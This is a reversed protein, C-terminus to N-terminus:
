QSAELHARREANAKLHALRLPEPVRCSMTRECIAVATRLSIRHGVSVYTKRRGTGLAYGRTRGDLEIAARGRRAAKVNGVLLSKAAGVTPVELEVGVQCAIGYGRPHLQGQGDVLYVIDKKKRVLKRLMPLERLGLYGPIYPFRSECSATSEELVEEGGPDMIILAAHGLDGSYAVDLGALFRLEGFDDKEIVSDRRELQIRNLDALVPHTTFSDFDQSELNVVIGNGTRVGEHELKAMSDSGGAVRGDAFVVRHSPVDTLRANSLVEGVARAAKVDGLARAIAGYTAVRGAPIQHVADLIMSVLDVDNCSASRSGM